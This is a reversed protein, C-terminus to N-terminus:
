ISKELDLYSIDRRVHLFNYILVDETGILKKEVHVTRQIYNYVQVVSLYELLKKVIKKM